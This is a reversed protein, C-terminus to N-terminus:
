ERPVMSDVACGFRSSRGDHGLINVGGLGATGAVASHKNECHGCDHPFLALGPDVFDVGPWVSPIQVLNLERIQTDDVFFVTIEGSVKKKELSLTKRIVRKVEKPKIKMMNQSNKVSVRM